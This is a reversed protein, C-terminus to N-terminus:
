YCITKHSTSSILDKIILIRSSYKCIKQLFLISFFYFYIDLNYQITHKFLNKCMPEIKQYKKTQKSILIIFTFSIQFLVIQTDRM